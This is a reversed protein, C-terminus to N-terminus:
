EAKKKPLDDRHYLVLFSLLFAGAMMSFTSIYYPYASTIFREYETHLLPHVSVQTASYLHSYGVRNYDIVFKFIGYTDPVRFQAELQGGKNALTTRVFPDIRVFELQVDTGNFPMWKGHVFEDFQVNFVIDNKVTYFRPTSKDSKLYHHINRSRLVGRQKFLWDTLAVALDQNGSKDSKKGNNPQAASLFFDNSFFDLSGVFGVRANNRAQLVSILLTRKGVTAPYESLTKEDPNATYSTSSATLVDLLLPNEPDSSMGTGRFLFPLNNKKAQGVILESSLLNNPSAVILTHQGDDSLDYNLHDVVASKDDAFEIGCESAFERIVDGVTNSGAVLVNGGADVFQTLVEADLRGGFEKTSPAFVIVHDYLYEGYKVIQLSSDDSTKFTISYGRDKLQKFYFSHSERLGLNDLLVLLRKSSGDVNLSSSWVSAFLLLGVAFIFLRAM